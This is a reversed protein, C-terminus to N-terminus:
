ATRPGPSVDRIQLVRYLDPHVRTFVFVKHQVQISCVEGIKTNLADEPIKFIEQMLFKNGIMGDLRPIEQPRGIKGWNEQTNITHLKHPEPEVDNEAYLVREDPDRTLIFWGTGPAYGVAMDVTTDYIHAELLELPVWAEWSRPHFLFPTLAQPELSM